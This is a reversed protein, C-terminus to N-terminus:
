TGRGTGAARGGIYGFKKCLVNADNNFSYDVCITGWVGDIAMEVRGSNGTKNVLYFPAIVWVWGLGAM